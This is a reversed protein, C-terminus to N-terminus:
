GGLGGFPGGGGAGGSVGGGPPSGASDTTGVTLCTPTLASKPVIKRTHRSACGKSEESTVSFEFEQVTSGSGSSSGGGVGLGGGLGGAGGPSGGSGSGSSAPYYKYVCTYRGIGYLSGNFWKCRQLLAKLEEFSQLSTPMAWTTYNEPLTSEPPYQNPNQDIYISKITEQVQVLFQEIANRDGAWFTSKFKPLAVAAVVVVIAVSVVVENLSLGRKNM